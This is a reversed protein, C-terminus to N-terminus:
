KADRSIRELLFYNFMGLVYIIMIMVNTALTWYAFFGVLMLVLFAFTLIGPIMDYLKNRM